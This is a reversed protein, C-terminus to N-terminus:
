CNCQLGSQDILWYRFGRILVSDYSKGVVFGSFSLLAILVNSQIRRFKHFKFFIWLILSNGIISLLGIFLRVFFISMYGDPNNTEGDFTWFHNTSYNDPHM